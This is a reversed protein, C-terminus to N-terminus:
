LLKFRALFNSWPRIHERGAADRYHAAPSWSGDGTKVDLSRPDGILQYHGGEVHEHTAVFPRAAAKAKETPYSDILRSIITADLREASAIWVTESGCVFRHPYYPSDQGEGSVRITSGIDYDPVDVRRGDCPGGVLLVKM